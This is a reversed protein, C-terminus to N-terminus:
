KTYVTDKSKKRPIEHVQYLTDRYMRVWSAPISYLNIGFSDKGLKNRFRRTSDLKGFFWVSDTQWVNKTPDTEDPMLTDHIQLGLQEFYEMKTLDKYFVGEYLFTRPTKIHMVLPKQVPPKDPNCAIFGILTILPILKKM